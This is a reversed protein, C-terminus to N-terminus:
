YKGFLESALLKARIGKIRKSVNQRSCDLLEAIERHTIKEKPSMLIYLVINKDTEDQLIELIRCVLEQDAYGQCVKEEVPVESPDALIDLISIEGNVDDLASNAGELSCIRTNRDDRIRRTKELTEGTLEALTELDPKHGHQQIYELERNAQVAVKRVYKAPKHILSAQEQLHMSIKKCIWFAACTAFRTEQETRYHYIAETLGLMGEQVLDEIEYSSCNDLCYKWGLINFVYKMYADIIRNRAKEDGKQAQRVLRRTDQDDLDPRDYAYGAYAKLQTNKQYILKM